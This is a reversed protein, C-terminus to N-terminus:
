RSSGPAFRFNASAYLICDELFGGSLHSLLASCTSLLINPSYTSCLVFMRRGPQVAPQRTM